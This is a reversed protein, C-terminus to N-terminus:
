QNYFANKVAQLLPDRSGAPQNARYGASLDYIIAGGLKNQRVYDIKSKMTMEDDYSIFMDNSSGSNDFGLWASEANADWHYNSSSYYKDMITYYPVNSQVNPATTWAQAPASVGGTTTGSGGTWVYGYFDIGVGLKSAPVGAAEWETVKQQISPVEKNVGPFRIGDSYVASNYWSIWGPYAGSMDYTMVNIQDFQDQLQGFLAPQWGVAATLLPKDLIPTNVQDLATRL